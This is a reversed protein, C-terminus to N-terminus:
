ASAQCELIRIIYPPARGEPVLYVKQAFLGPTSSFDWIRKKEQITKGRPRKLELTKIIALVLLSNLLVIVASVTIFGFLGTLAHLLPHSLEAKGFFGGIGFGLNHTFGLDSGNQNMGLKVLGIELGVWLLAVISPAFGWRKRAWGVAWGFLAFLLTGSILLPLEHSADRWLRPIAGVFGISGFESVSFFSLGFLFGLRLSEKPTAKITRYLFPTLAFFSFYWYGPFFNAILLLLASTGAFIFSEAWTVLPPKSFTDPLKAGVPARISAVRTAQCGAQRHAFDLRV